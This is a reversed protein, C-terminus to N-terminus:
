RERQCSTAGGAVAKAKRVSRRFRLIPANHGPPPASRERTSNSHLAEGDARARRTPSSWPILGRKGSAPYLYTSPPTKPENAGSTACALGYLDLKRRPWPDDDPPRAVRRGISSRGRGMPSGTSPTSGGVSRSDRSVSCSRGNPTTSSHRSRRSGVEWSRRRLRYVKGARRGFEESTLDPAEDVELLVAQGSARREISRHVETGIRAAPGSFRPLPRVATWYFRKPCRAYDIVGGVFGDTAGGARGLQRDRGHGRM